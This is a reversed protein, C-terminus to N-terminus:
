ISKTSTEDVTVEKFERGDTCRGKSHWWYIIGCHECHAMPSPLGNEFHAMADSQTPAPKIPSNDEKLVETVSEVDWQLLWNKLTTKIVWGLRKVDGDHQPKSKLVIRFEKTMEHRELDLSYDM